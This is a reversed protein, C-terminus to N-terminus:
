RRNAALALVSTLALGEGDSEWWRSDCSSCSRLRVARDAVTLNIEVLKSKTCRPCHM